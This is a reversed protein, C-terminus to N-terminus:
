TGAEAISTRIHEAGRAELEMDEVQLNPTSISIMKLRCGARTSDFTLHYCAHEIMNVPQSDCCGM